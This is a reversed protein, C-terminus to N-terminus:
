CYALLHDFSLTTLAILATTYYTPHARNARDAQNLEGWAASHAGTAWKAAAIAITDVPGLGSAHELGPLLQTAAARLPASCSTAMWVPVRVADFGFQAPQGPSGPPSAPHVQGDSGIVAWDPPLSGSSTLSRLQTGAARAISPWPPGYSAALESLEGPALYSPDVYEPAQAAWPGAVLTPGDISTGVEHSAMAHALTRGAILYSPDGFRRAALALAAAAGLDADSAAEPDAVTGAVWHWALLGDPQMLNRQAWRWVADFTPRDGVAATMLMAYAQGESVTDGGQDRRAVRGDSGVYGRVFANVTAAPTLAASPARLISFLLLSVLLVGSVTAGIAVLGWFRRRVTAPAPHILSRGPNGRESIAIPRATATGRNPRSSLRYPAGCVM